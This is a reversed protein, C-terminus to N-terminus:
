TYYNSLRSSPTGNRHSFREVSNLNPSIKSSSSSKQPSASAFTYLDEQDDRFLENESSELAEDLEDSSNSTIPSNNLAQNEKLNLQSFTLSDNSDLSDDSSESENVDEVEDSSSLDTSIDEDQQIEDESWIIDELIISEEESNSEKGYKQVNMFACCLVLIKNFIKKDFRFKRTLIDFNNKLDGFANEIGRRARSHKRNEREQTQTLSQKRRGKRNRPTRHPPLHCPGEWGRYGEDVLLCDGEELIKEEIKSKRLSVLDTNEGAPMSPGIYAFSGDALIAIQTNLAPKKLKFSYYKKYTEGRSQFLTVPTHTGDLIMTIHTFGLPMHQFSLERRRDLSKKSVWKKSFSDCKELFIIFIEKLVSPSVTFNNSMDILSPYYLIWYLFLYVCDRVYINSPMLKQELRISIHKTFTYFSFFTLRRTIQNFLIESKNLIRVAGYAGRRTRMRTSTISSM